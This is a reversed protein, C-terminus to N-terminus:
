TKSRKNDTDIIKISLALARIVESCLAQAHFCSSKSFVEHFGWIKRGFKILDIWYIKFCIFFYCVQLKLVIKTMSLVNKMSYKRSLKIFIGTHNHVPGWFYVCWDNKNIPAYWETVTPLSLYSLYIKLVLGTKREFYLGRVRDYKTFILHYTM